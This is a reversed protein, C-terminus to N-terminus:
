SIWLGVEGRIVWYGDMKELLFVSGEGCLNGCHYDGYVLAQDRSRNFGVGSLRLYFQSPDHPADALGRTLTGSPGASWIGSRLAVVFGGRERFAYCGIAEPMPMATNRGTAPGVRNRSPANIDVWYLAQEATNWQACEGLSAKIDVVCTFPSDPPM